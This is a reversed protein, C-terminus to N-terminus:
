FIRLIWTHQGFIREYLHIRGWMRGWVSQRAEGSSPAPNGGRTGNHFQHKRITPRTITYVPTNQHISTYESHDTNAPLFQRPICDVSLLFTFVRVHSAPIERPSQAQSIGPAAKGSQPFDQIYYQPKCEIESFNCPSNGIQCRYYALM